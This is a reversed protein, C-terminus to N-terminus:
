GSDPGLILDLQSPQDVDARWWEVRAERLPLSVSDPVPIREPSIASGEAVIITHARVLGDQAQHSVYLPYSAFLELARVFIQLPVGAIDTGFVEARPFCDGNERLWSYLNLSSIENGWDDLVLGPLIHEEKGMTVLAFTLWVSPGESDSEPEMLVAVKEGREVVSGRIKQRVIKM